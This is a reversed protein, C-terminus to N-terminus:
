EEASKEMLGGEVVCAEQLKQENAAPGEVNELEPEMDAREEESVYWHEQSEVLEAEEELTTSEGEQRSGNATSRSFGKGLGTTVEGSGQLIWSEHVLQPKKIRGAERAHLEAMLAEPDDEYGM